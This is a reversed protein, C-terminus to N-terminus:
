PNLIGRMIEPMSAHIKELVGIKEFLVEIEKETSAEIEISPKFGKIDEVFIRHKGLDYQWGEREYEFGHEFESSLEAEIFNNAEEESDFEKKL